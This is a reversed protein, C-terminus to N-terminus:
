WIDKSSMNLFALAAAKCIAVAPTEAWVEVDTKEDMAEVGWFQKDGSQLKDLSHVLKVTKTRQILKEMVPWVHTISKTYAPVNRMARFWLLDRPDIVSTQGDPNTISLKGDVTRCVEWKMVAVCVLAELEPGEKLQLIGGASLAALNM